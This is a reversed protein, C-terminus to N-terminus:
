QSLKELIQLYSELKEIEEKAMATVCKDEVENFVENGEEDVSGTVGFGKFSNEIYYNDKFIDYEKGGYPYSNNAYIDKGCGGVINGYYTGEVSSEGLFYCDIISGAFYATTENATFGYQQVLGVIGGTFSSDEGSATATIKGSRICSQATGASGFSYVISYGLIGGACVSDANIFIDGSSVSNNVVSYAQGCIGGVIATSGKVSINGSSVCNSVVPYGQACIGGAIVAGDGEATIEGSNKCAIIQGSSAFPNEKILCIGASYCSPAGSEETKEFTSVASIKGRNECYEITNTNEYVMGSANPNWGAYECVQSIDAENIDHSLVGGNYVCVGAVDVTDADVKGTVTCNVIDGSSEGAIGGFMANAGTEGKLSFDSYNVTCNEITGYVLKGASNYKHINSVVLGGLVMRNSGAVANINGNVSLTVGDIAGYNTLAFFASSGGLSLDCNVNLSIDSVTANESIVTFIPDGSTEITLNSIRGDFEGFSAGKGFILKKGGGNIKCNMKSVSYNEPVVIDQKLTYEKRSAFNIESLNKVEGEVPKPMLSVTTVPVGVGVTVALLTCLCATMINKKERYSLPRRDIIIGNGEFRINLGYKISYISQLRAKVASSPKALPYVRKLVRTKDLVLLMELPTVVENLYLRLCKGAKKSFKASIEAPERLQKYDAIKIFKEEYASLIKKSKYLYLLSLVPFRGLRYAGCRAEELANFAKIDDKKVAELLSNEISQAM